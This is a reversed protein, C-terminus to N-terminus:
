EEGENEMRSEILEFVSKSANIMALVPITVPWFVSMIAATSRDNNICEYHTIGIDLKNLVRFVLAGIFTYSLVAPLVIGFAISLGTM